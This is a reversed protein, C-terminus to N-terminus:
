KWCVIHIYDGRRLGRQTGVVARGYPQRSFTYRVRLSTKSFLEASNPNLDLCAACFRKSLASQTLCEEAMSFQLHEGHGDSTYARVRPIIFGNAAQNVPPM